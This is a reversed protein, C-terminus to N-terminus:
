VGAGWARVLDRMGITETLIDDFISDMYDQNTYEIALRGAYGADRLTGFLAGFNITGKDLKTQLAGIKTQRLHVHAAHPALPDIEDQRWGLCVFHASDLTLKLGPVRDLLELVLAPSELYSHVHPEITLTVGAERAIPLLAALSAASQDLADRRSQGPNVVGPLVFVTPVGAAKCFRVVQRFDAENRDRHRPDALNRDALTDGFLHDLNPLDVGLSLVREAMREPEALLAAKDLAPGFFYGIDLAGIGLVKSLGAAEELSCARLSWSTLSLKM